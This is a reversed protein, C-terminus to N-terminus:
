RGNCSPSRIACALIKANKAADSRPLLALWGFVRLLVLYVLHLAM